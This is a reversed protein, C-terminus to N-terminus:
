PLFNNLYAALNVLAAENRGGVAIYAPPEVIARYDGGGRHDAFPSHGLLHQDEHIDVASFQPTILAVRRGLECHVSRDVPEPRINVSDNMGM